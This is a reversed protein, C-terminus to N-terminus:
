RSKAAGLSIDLAKASEEVSGETGYHQKIISPNLDRVENGDGTM